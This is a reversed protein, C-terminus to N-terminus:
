LQCLTVNVDSNLPVREAFGPMTLQGSKVQRMLSLLGFKLINDKKNIKPVVKIEKKLLSKNKGNMTIEVVVEEHIPLAMLVLVLHVKSSLEDKVVAM